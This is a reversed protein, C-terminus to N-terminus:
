IREINRGPETPRMRQLHGMLWELRPMEFMRLRDKELREYLASVTGRRDTIMVDFRRGFSRAAALERVRITQHGNKASVTWGPRPSPYKEIFVEIGEKAIEESARM